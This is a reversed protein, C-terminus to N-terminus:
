LRESGELYTLIDELLLELGRGAKDEQDKCTSSVVTLHVQGDRDDGKDCM